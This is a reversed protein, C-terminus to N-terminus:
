KDYSVLIIELVKDESNVENYFNILLPTFALCPPSFYAAFFLCTVKNNKLPQFELIGNKGEFHTGLNFTEKEKVKSKDEEEKKKLKSKLDLM